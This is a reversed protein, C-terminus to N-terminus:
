RFVDIDQRREHDHGSFYFLSYRLGASLYALVPSRKLHYLNKGKTSSAQCPACGLWPFNAATLYKGLLM